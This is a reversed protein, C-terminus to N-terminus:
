RRKQAYFSEDGPLTIAERDLVHKV